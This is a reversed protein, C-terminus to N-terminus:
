ACLEVAPSTCTNMLPTNTWANMRSPGCALINEKVRHEMWEQVCEWRLAKFKGSGKKPVRQREIEM